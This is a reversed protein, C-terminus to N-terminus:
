PNGMKPVMEASAGRGKNKGLMEPLGGGRNAVSFPAMKSVCPDGM